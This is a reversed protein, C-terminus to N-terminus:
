EVEPHGTTGPETATTRALAEASAQTRALHDGVQDRADDDIRDLHTRTDDLTTQLRTISRALAPRHETIWREACSKHCPKGRPSILLTPQQCIVCPRSTTSVRGTHRWDLVVPEGPPPLAPTHEPPRAPM